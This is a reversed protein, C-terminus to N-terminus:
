KSPNGGGSPAVQESKRNEPKSGIAVVKKLTDDDGFIRGIKWAGMSWSFGDVGISPNLYITNVNPQPLDNKQVVKYDLHPTGGPWVQAICYKKDKEDSSEIFLRYGIWSSEVAIVRGPFPQAPTLKNDKWLADEARASFSLAVVILILFRSM